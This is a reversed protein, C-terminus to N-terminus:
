CFPPFLTACLPVCYLICLESWKGREYRCMTIYKRKGKRGRTMLILYARMSKFPGRGGNSAFNQPLMCKKRFFSLRPSAGVEHKSASKRCSIVRKAALLLSLSGRVRARVKCKQVISKVGLHLFRKIRHRLNM